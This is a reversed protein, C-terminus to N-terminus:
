ELSKWASIRAILGELDSEKIGYQKYLLIGSKSFVFLAPLGELQFLDVLVHHPDLLSSYSMGLKEAHDQIFEPSKNQDTNIGLFVFDNGTKEKLKEIVPVSKACPECWTAWVDMVVVSGSFDEQLNVEEGSWDLLSLNPLKHVGTSPKEDKCNTALFFVSLILGWIVHRM